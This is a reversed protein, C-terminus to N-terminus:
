HRGTKAPVKNRSFPVSMNRPVEIERNSSVKAFITLVSVPSQFDRNNNLHRGHCSVSFYNVLIFLKDHRIVLSCWPYFSVLFAALFYGQNLCLSRRRGFCFYLARVRVLYNFLLTKLNAHNHFSHFYTVIIYKM